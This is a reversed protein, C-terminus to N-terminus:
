EGMRWAWPPVKRPPATRAVSPAWTSGRHRTKSTRSPGTAVEIPETWALCARRRLACSHRRTQATGSPPMLGEVLGGGKRGARPRGRCAVRGLARNRRRRRRLGSTGGRGGRAIIIIHHSLPPPPPQSGRLLTRSPSHAGRPPRSHFFVVRQKPPVRIEAVIMFAKARLARGRRRQPLMIVPRWAHCQERRTRLM